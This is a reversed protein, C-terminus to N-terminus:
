RVPEDSRCTSCPCSSGHAHTVSRDGRASRTKFLEDHSTHAACHSREGAAEASDSQPSRAAVPSMWGALVAAGVVAYPVAKM